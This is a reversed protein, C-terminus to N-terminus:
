SCCCLKSFIFNNWKFFHRPTWNPSHRGCHSEMEKVKFILDSHRMIDSRFQTYCTFLHPEYLHEGPESQGRSTSAACACIDKDGNTNELSPFMHTQSCMHANVVSQISYCSQCMTHCKGKSGKLSSSPWLNFGPLASTWTWSLDSLFHWHKSVHLRRRDTTLSGWGRKIQTLGCLTQWSCQRREELRLVSGSDSIVRLFM